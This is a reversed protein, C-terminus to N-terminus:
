DTKETKMRRMLMMLWPIRTAIQIQSVMKKMMVGRMRMRRRMRVILLRKADAAGNAGDRRQM